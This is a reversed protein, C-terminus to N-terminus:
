QTENGTSEDANAAPVLHRAVRALGGLDHIDEEFAPVEVLPVSTGIHQDLMTVAERDVKGRARDDALARQLRELLGAPDGEEPLAERLLGELVDRGAAPEDRLPHVANVVVADRRMGNEELHTTLFIAERMALPAPSTVVVFAVDESRLASAVSEAREKFGGFLDNLGVVFEAVQELFGMGTFKGLQKLLFTASKGLLNFSFRGRGQFAQVFWRMAPSDIAAVMREPADLFDLANSTPPTDLIVLDFRGDERVAHLKEM